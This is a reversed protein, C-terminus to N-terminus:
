NYNNVFFTLKIYIHFNFNNLIIPLTIFRLSQFWSISDIHYKTGNIEFEFGVKNSM